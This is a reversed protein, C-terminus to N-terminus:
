IIRSDKFIKISEELIGNYYAIFLGYNTMPKNQNKALEIRDLMIEQNIMCSGCHIIYDYNSLDQLFDYSMLFEYTYSGLLDKLMKPIKIKGIDEHSSNHSCSEMLLIHPNNLKEFENLSDIFYKLDGKNYAQLISYSSLYFRNNNIESVIKFVQSDCVILGIDKNSSLYEELESEKLVISVINKDLCERILQMQPLILRGEPAESDIPIVHVIKNFSLLLGDLLGKKSRKLKKELLQKLSDIGDKQYIFISNPYDQKIKNLENQNCLDIKNFVLIKDKEIKEFEDLDIDNIDVVYVILNARNIAKISKNVRQKGLESKDDLGATDILNIPGVGLLEMRKVVEDTTTGAKDSVISIDQNTINNIITSKGVNMKGIFAITPILSPIKDM